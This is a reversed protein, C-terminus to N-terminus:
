QMILSIIKTSTQYNEFILKYLTIKKQVKFKVAFGLSIVFYKQTVGKEITYLKITVSDDIERSYYLNLFLIM